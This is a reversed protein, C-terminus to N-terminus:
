ATLKCTLTNYSRLANSLSVITVPKHPMFTATTKSFASLAHTIVALMQLVLLVCLVYNGWVCMCVFVFRALKVLVKDQFTHLVFFTNKCVQDLYSLCTCRATCFEYGGKQIKVATFIIPARPYKMIWAAILVIIDVFLCFHCPAIQM